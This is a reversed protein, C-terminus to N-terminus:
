KINVMKLPPLIPTIYNMSDRKCFPYSRVSELTIGNRRETFNSRVSELTVGNRRETPFNGHLTELKKSKNLDLFPIKKFINM